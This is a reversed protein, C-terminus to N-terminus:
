DFSRFSPLVGLNPTMLVLRGHSFFLDPLMVPLFINKIEDFIVFFYLIVDWVLGLSNLVSVFYLLVLLMTSNRLDSALLGQDSGPLFWVARLM